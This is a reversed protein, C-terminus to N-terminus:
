GILTDALPLTMGQQAALDRLWNVDRFLHTGDIPRNAVYAHPGIRPDLRLTTEVVGYDVGLRESLDALQNAWTAELALMSNLAHKSMEATELDTWIIRKTFSWLIAELVAKPADTGLGAVIRPQWKFDEVEHHTRVNEPVYAFHLAPWKNALYRTFGVPVPSSLIVLTDPKRTALIWNLTSLLMDPYGRCTAGDIPTAKLFWLVPTDGSALWDAQCDVWKQGTDSLCWRVAMALPSGGYVAITDTV